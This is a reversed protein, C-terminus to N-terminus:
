FIVTARINAIVVKREVFKPRINQWRDIGTESEPVRPFFLLSLSITLSPPPPCIQFVPKARGRYEHRHATDTRIIPFRPPPINDILTLPVSSERMGASSYAYHLIEAIMGLYFLRKISHEFNRSPRPVTLRGAPAVLQAWSNPFFHKRLPQM